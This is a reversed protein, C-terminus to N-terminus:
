RESESWKERELRAIVADIVDPLDFLCDCQMVEVFRYGM